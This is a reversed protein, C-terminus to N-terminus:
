LLKAAEEIRKLTEPTLGGAQAEVVAARVSELRSELLKVRREALDLNREAIDQDRGKQLLVFLAKVDKPNSRPSIALEFARQRIADVTAQDFRAPNAAAASAVEDAAAAAQSRRRLLQPVCAEQWFSSFASIGVRLGFEKEVSARAAHYPMGNLLWEVLQAQQEEPLNLLKSDSRPKRM